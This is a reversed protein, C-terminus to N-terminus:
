SRDSGGNAASVEAASFRYSERCFECVVSAGGDDDLLGNQDTTGIM